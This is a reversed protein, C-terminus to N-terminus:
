PLMRALAVDRQTGDDTFGALVYRGNAPQIAVVWGQDDHGFDVVARGDGSFTLDLSGNANYRAAAFNGSASGVALIKGNSQVRIDHAMANSGPGFGTALKGTAHFTTDLTGNSNLRALFFYSQTVPSKDYGAIVVKGDPQLTVAEPLDQGGFNIVQRGDGSFALDPTGNSNVRAVAFDCGQWNWEPWLSDCSIGVVIIKGDPQLVLDTGLDEPGTGFNVNAMGDGSFSTDLTGNANYRYLAFDFNVGNDMYGAVVIKGDPQIALGSWSGNAGGGFDTALKGDLSFTKDPSGNPNYRVVAMDCDGYPLGEVLCRTGSVVIRGNPQIVVDEAWEMGGLDTVVIGDGSFTPDLSGNINYRVIYFDGDTEGVVVIKGDAQLAIGGVWDNSGGNLDTTVRGNGGFTIDLGGSAAYAITFALLSIVVAVLVAKWAMPGFRTFM